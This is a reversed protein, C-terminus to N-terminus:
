SVYTWNLFYVKEEKRISRSIKTHWPRVGTLLWLKKLQDIHNKVTAYSSEVDRAISGISLPSAVRDPLLLVVKEATDLERIRTLEVLDERLILSLYDRSRRGTQFHPLDAPKFISSLSTRRDLESPNM